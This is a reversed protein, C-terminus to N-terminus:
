SRRKRRRLGGPIPTDDLSIPRTVSVPAWPKRMPLWCRVSRHYAEFERGFYRQLNADEVPRVIVHWLIAGFALYAFVLLAGTYLGVGIGIWLTSTVLPNRLWAYPGTIVLRRPRDFPWLTAGGSIALTSGAWFGAIVGLVAITMGIVPQRPIFLGSAEVHYQWRVLLLPLGGDVVAWTVATVLLM